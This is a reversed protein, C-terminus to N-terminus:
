GCWVFHQVAHNKKLNRINPSDTLLFHPLYNIRRPNSKYCAAIEEWYGDDRRSPLPEM